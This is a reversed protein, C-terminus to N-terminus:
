ESKKVSFTFTSGENLKSKVHLENGGKELMTKCIMLGLGSGKEGGTGKVSKMNFVSLEKLKEESIGVGHDVISILYKKSTTEMLIEVKSGPFSFKLANTLLNRLVAETYHLDEFAFVDEQIGNEITINKANAQSQVKRICSEVCTKLNIRVPTYNARGVNLTAWQMMSDLLEALETSSKQFETLCFLKEEESFSNYNKYIIDVMQKQAAIPNKLDHSIITFFTSKEENILRLRKNEKAKIRSYFVVFLLLSFVIVITVGLIVNKRKNRWQLENLQYEKKETNYKMELESVLKEYDQSQLTDKLATSKELYTLAKGDNVNKYLEYLDYYVIQLVQKFGIKECIEAAQLFCQEAKDRHNLNMEALGLQKLTIAQSVVNETQEFVSLAKLCVNVCEQWQKKAALVDAKQSLRIAVKENRGAKEDLSLAENIAKLAADYDKMKLCIECKTGLRVALSGTEKNKRELAIAEDIYKNAQTYHGISLSVAAYTNLANSMIKDDHIKKAIDLSKGAYEMAQEYAALRFYCANIVEYCSAKFYQLSDINSPVTEDARMALGISRQFDGQVYARNAMGLYVAAEKLKRPYKSSSSSPFPFDGSKVFEGVLRNAIVNRDDGSAHKFKQFLSDVDITQATIQAMCCLLLLWSLLIKKM